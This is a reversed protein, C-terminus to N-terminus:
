AGWQGIEVVAMHVLRYDLLRLFYVRVCLGHSKERDEIARVDGQVRERHQKEAVAAEVAGVDVARPRVRLRRVTRARGARREAVGARLRPRHVPVLLCGTAFGDGDSGFLSNSSIFLPVLGVQCFTTWYAWYIWDSPLATKTGVCSINWSSKCRLFSLFLVRPM